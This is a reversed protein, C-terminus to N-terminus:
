PRCSPRWCSESLAAADTQRLASELAAVSLAPAGGDLEKGTGREGIVLVPRSLPAVHSIAAMTQQFAASQGIPTPAKGQTM